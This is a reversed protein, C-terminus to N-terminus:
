ASEAEDQDLTAAHSRQNQGYVSTHIEWLVVKFASAVPISLLMGVLGYYHQGVAVAAILVLPHLNVLKAVILPFIVVMDVVNAIVYVLLVPFLNGPHAPDFAAVLLGPVAGLVPGIYPLINTIGALVALVLAYPCKVLWLGIFTLLGVLFAEIAKARLYDSIATLVQHSVLFFPEFYRNPVLSFFRKRISGGENLIVFTLFPAVLAWTLINGAIEAGNDVFWKGTSNGWELIADTPHIEGLFGYQAVFQSEWEKLRNIGATFLEPARSRFGTWEERAQQTIWASGLSLLGAISAFLLGIAAARPLGRRELANVLPGFIMAAGLSLLTPTSLSPTVLFVASVAAVTGGLFVLKILDRQLHPDKFIRM